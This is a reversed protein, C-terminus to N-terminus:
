EKALVRLHRKVAEKWGHCTLAIDSVEDVGEVCREITAAEIAERESKVMALASDLMDGTRKNIIELERVRKNIIELERGRAELREILEATKPADTM